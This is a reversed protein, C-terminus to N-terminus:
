NQKPIVINAISKNNQVAQINIKMDKYEKKLADEYKSILKKADEQSVNDKFAMTATVMNNKVYVQGTDLDKEKSLQKTRNIDQVLKKPDKDPKVATYCGTLSAFMAICITILTLKKLFSKM